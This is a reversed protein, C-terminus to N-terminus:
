DADGLQHEQPVIRWSHIYVVTNLWKLNEDLFFTLVYEDERDLFEQDSMSHNYALEYYGKSLLAYQIVPVKTIIEEGTDNNYVTLFFENQHDAMMRSVSLDAAVGDVYVIESNGDPNKKSVGAEAGTKNWDLYNIETDGLLSNNYALKGNADEIRFDFMSPDMNEGSLQQLVIRIHNTDKTLYMTYDYSQGDQSDPLEVDMNGHYMFYLRKDSCNTYQANSITNLTCTLEDITTVGKSPSPVTFSEMDVGDNYLGCWAVLQYNGPELDLEMTYGPQSLADGRGLFEKVFLGKEDFAYLNVSNVESPFADAWKLNLDYVFHLYYHVECDGEYEFVPNHCSTLLLATAPILLLQKINM